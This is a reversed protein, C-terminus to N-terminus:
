LIYYIYLMGSAIIDVKFEKGKFCPMASHKPRYAKLVDCDKPLVIDKSQVIDYKLNADDLWHVM